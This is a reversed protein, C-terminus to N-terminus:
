CGRWGSGLAQGARLRVARFAEASPCMRLLQQLELPTIYRDRPRFM